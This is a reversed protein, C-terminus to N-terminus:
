MVHSVYAIDQKVLRELSADFYDKKCDLADINGDKIYTMYRCGGFCMPLYECDACDGNKWTGLRYPTSYDRVGTRLDGVEFGEKGIFGPCKYIVGDFHVVYYSKNEVACFIPGAKPTNFGRRLIEGRLFAEAELLWPENSSMCGAKYDVPSIDGEPRKTIPAFKISSIRDPTLGAWELDDLLQYFGKYNKKDFNGVIGIKVLDCTEQINKILTDFSEAGSKFPRYKNHNEAPGDLTIQVNTLGLRALEQAVKRTFLSGNTVLTFGYSAGRSGTFSKLRKSISKILGLSLLPEGGYFDIVLSKKHDPFHDRIFEVLHDATEDNMYLPGKMEGEYCYVCAFNCDMNLVVTINLEPNSGNMRDLLGLLARKEEERDEVIMGLRSLLTEDEPSLTGQEISQLTEHDLLIKSAKKTSFLLKQESSQESPYIKLYRSLQM